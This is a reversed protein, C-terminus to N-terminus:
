PFRTFRVQRNVASVRLVRLFDLDRISSGLELRGRQYIPVRAKSLVRVYGAPDHLWRDGPQIDIKYLPKMRVDDSMKTKRNWYSKFSSVSKVDRLDKLIEFNSDRVTISTIEGALSM